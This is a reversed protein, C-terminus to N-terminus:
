SGGRQIKEPVGDVFLGSGMGSEFPGGCDGTESLKSKTRDIATMLDGVVRAKMMSSSALSGGGEGPELKIKQWDRDRVQLPKDGELTKRM